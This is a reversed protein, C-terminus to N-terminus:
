LLRRNALPRGWYSGNPKNPRDRHSGDPQDTVIGIPTMSAARTRCALIILCREPVSSHQSSTSVASNRRIWTVRHPPVQHHSQILAQCFVISFLDM